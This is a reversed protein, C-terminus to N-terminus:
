AVRVVRVAVLAVPVPRSMRGSMWASMRRRSSRAPAHHGFIARADMVPAFTAVTPAMRTPWYATIKNAAIRSYKLLNPINHLAMVM